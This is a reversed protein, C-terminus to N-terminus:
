SLHYLKAANQWVIKQKHEDPIDQFHEEVVKQSEPWTCDPHPYDSAWMVNDVGLRDLTRMGVLDDEFTARCQRRWFTSPVQNTVGREKWSHRRFMTDLRELYYAIWGIGSEVLVVQLNPFRPLPGALIWSSVMGAMYIPPLSQFVAKAPTPDIARYYDLGKRGAGLHISLAIGTEQAANWVPDWQTDWYPKQWEEAEAPVQLALFGLKVLRQLETVAGEVDLMPVVGVALLREPAATIWESLANNYARFCAAREEDDKVLDASYLASLGIGLTGQSYLVEASVGDTDQDKIREAPDRDGVRGLAPWWREDGRRTMGGAQARRALAELIRRAGEQHSRPVHALFKDDTITVHSDASILRQKVKTTM